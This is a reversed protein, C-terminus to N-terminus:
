HLLEITINLVSIIIIAKFTTLLIRIVAKVTTLLIVKSDSSTIAKPELIQRRHNPLQQTVAPVPKQETKV